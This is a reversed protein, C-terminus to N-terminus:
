PTKREADSVTRTPRRSWIERRWTRAGPNLELGEPGLVLRAEMKKALQVLPLDGRENQRGAVHVRYM